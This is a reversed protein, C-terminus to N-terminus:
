WKMCKMCVMTRNDMAAQRGVYRWPSPAPTKSDPIVIYPPPQTAEVASEEMYLGLAATIACVAEPDPSIENM